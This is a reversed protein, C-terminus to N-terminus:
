VRHLFGLYPELKAKLLAKHVRCKLMYYGFNFVNNMGDYAKFTKRGDPRILELFLKFVQNFYQKTFKAEIAMFNRQFTLKDESKINM